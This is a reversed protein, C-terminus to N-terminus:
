GHIVEGESKDFFLVYLLMLAAGIVVCCDAFNFVAFNFLRVEIYDVVFGRFIRDILNGVGGAIILGVSAVMFPKKIKKTVLLVIAAILFLSTIIILFPLKDRLISFAAGTNEYYSLNIIERDGFKIFQVPASAGKLNNLAWVKILQDVGVLVAAAALTIYLMKAGLDKIKM